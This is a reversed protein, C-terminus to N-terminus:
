AVKAEADKLKNQTEINRMELTKMQGKLLQIDSTILTAQM